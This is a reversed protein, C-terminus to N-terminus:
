KIRKRALIRNWRRKIKKIEEFSKYEKAKLDSM